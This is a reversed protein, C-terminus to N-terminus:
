CGFVLVCNSGGFGFAHSAAHRIRQQRPGVRWRAAFGAGLAPDPTATPGSGALLGHQLALVCIVAELAGAAGMAHGTLGKTACAHVTTPYARALLAAEAADNAASGSGHLNVFDIATADLAARALADALARQAGLAQPQPSSMHFADNSEGHGLLSVGASGDGRELLLWAAAEGISIGSRAADFPRCPERALVGLAQFGHLLSSGLADVGGAVVADALGLRLWREAVALAKASSACASSVTLVPGQLQLSQQVFDAVAHPTNLRPGDRGAEFGGRRYAAESVAITSASTGLALGVRAAGHRACAAAVAAAFGDGQLGLWALRTARSDWGAWDAPWPLSELGAVRGVATQTGPLGPLEELALASRNAALGALLPALGQGHGGTATFARVAVPPMAAPASM